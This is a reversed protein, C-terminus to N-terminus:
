FTCAQETDKHLKVRTLGIIVCDLANVYATSHATLSIYLAQSSSIAPPGSKIPCQAFDKWSLLM